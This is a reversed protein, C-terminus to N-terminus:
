DSAQPLVDQTPCEINNHFFKDMSAYFKNANGNVVMIINLFLVFASLTIAFILNNNLQSNM